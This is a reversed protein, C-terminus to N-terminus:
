VRNHAIDDLAQQHWAPDLNWTVEIGRVTRNNRWVPKMYIRHHKLLSTFKNPSGPMNGVTYEFITFLEDRTLHPEQTRVLQIILDKFANARTQMLLNASSVVSSSPLHDWLTAMNGTNLAEAITDVATKSIEIITARPASLLPARAQAVDAPLNMLYSYLDNIENPIIEEVEQTSLEIRTNQYGGVNFRRDDPAIEVGAAKNSAFLMNAHNTVLRAPQYMRRVSITPEVILNKLTATIKAHYLATGSEIEDIMVLLKNEMFDTFESALEGMRKTMTNDHGFLPTLIKHFLVGKGTGQTGQLVWATGTLTRKQAIVALWNYFRDVTVPEGGLAHSIVKHCVPPPTLVAPDHPNKMCESANFVNVTQTAYDIVDSSSPDYIRRWDPVTEGLPLNHNQMFHRLQTESKAPYLELAQNNTDYFGNWYVGTTFERFALYIKGEADPTSSSAKQTLRAWYSPLLDQTRYVPEGKFNHIFEPSEVPHFYAWSDGGNLNFYVFGREEKMDSIVATGPNSMYEMDGHYKFKPTKAKPLGQAVRLTTIRTQIKEKLAEPLLIDAPVSMLPKGRAQFSIRPNQADPFPDAIGPALNPPAIYLLKDNQCTTVDLPWRLANGTKTLEIQAAINPRTLNLQQLWSKLLAPRVPRDLQMFVHCRLGGSNELGMSSSWQLIYDIGALDIDALFEDVSAYSSIGDLDLCIWDTMDDGNTSDRRSESVLARNLKGKLLCEGRPSRASLELYLAQLDKLNLTESTVEYIFPYPHKVLIGNALEYRKVIPKDAKLFSIQM